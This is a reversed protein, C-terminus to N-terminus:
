TKLLSSLQKLKVIFLKIELLTYKITLLLAFFLIDLSQNHNVFELM